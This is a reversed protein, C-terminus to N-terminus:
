NTGYIEELHKYDTKGEAIRKIVIYSIIKETDWLADLLQEYEYLPMEDILWTNLESPRIWTLFDKRREIEEIDHNDNTMHVKVVVREFNINVYSLNCMWCICEKECIFLYLEPTM